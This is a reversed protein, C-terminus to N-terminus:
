SQTKYVVKLTIIEYPKVPLTVEKTNQAVIQEEEELMSCVVVREAAEPLTLKLESRQNYYEYLRLIQVNEEMEEPAKVVELIVNECDPVATSYIVRKNGEQKTKVGAFLPNNLEYAEKVTGGTRFDGKHPYISYTFEHKEKDASPNPSTASKLLSLGIVGAHVHCGYKCDNLLSVGYNNEHIDLWKHHCVEFRASDWSTNYHTPRTVNGYQIEYDAENSHIDVPFLAKLFIHDQKWDIETKIDIRESDHYLFIYQTISSDLYKREVKMCVRLNGSEVVKMETVNDIEWSKETYYNNVDWADWNHPRDEYSMIVNGCEGPKLVERENVKDYISLFQGKENFTVRIRSNEMSDKSIRLHTEPVSGDVLTYVKYGAAPVASARFLIRGDALKEYPYLNEGDTLRGKVAANEAEALVYGTGHFGNPNFVVIAGKDAGISDTLSKVARELLRNGRLFLDEYEKKSVEYVEEISSGPLIDHFQNRLLIEWLDDLEERPYAAGNLRSDMVGFLEINHLLFEAKRNYKKNRAMSTYTGRHYELYLEGNWEPLYQKGKVEGELKHFFENSSSQKTVPCGPIGKEMRRAAELMERTPGGGGDGYGYAMLVESNLYKQQYRQWSGKVQAPELMGNYTTFFNKSVLSKDYDSAPIFHTLVKSGDIGIWNFTDYPMKNFENWSIKTTMFYRIGSKQMIQPLAASYGFVDPLWLVENEKGFEKKFFAKGKVIQRVLSEGGTLNCDAEVFMGGEAEWRGEEIRKKIEEYVAPEREKVAKYLHPQSSMFRYEPYEEMLRLVTAFSRVAKDKATELTWLWAIDIHTHGVCWVEEKKRSCRKEYFEKDLYDQAEALAEYYEASYAKRLDLRNLSENLTLLIEHFEKEDGEMLGAVDYPIKVDYYYKETERDRVAIRADMMSYFHMKGTYVCLIINYVAGGTGQEALTIAEHNEDMGQRLSGNVYVRFQPSVTDWRVGGYNNIGFIVKQGEYAEPLEAQMRFYYHEDEGGCDMSGPFETWEKEELLTLDQIQEKLIVYEIGSIKQADRESLGSLHRVLGGIREKLMVM